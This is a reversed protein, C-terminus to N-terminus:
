WRCIQVHRFKSSNSKKSKWWVTKNPFKGDPCCFMTKTSNDSIWPAETLIILSYIYSLSLSDWISFCPLLIWKNTRTNKKQPPFVTKPIMIENSMNINSQQSQAGWQWDRIRQMKVLQSNKCYYKDATFFFSRQLFLLM